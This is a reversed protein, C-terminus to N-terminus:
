ELTVNKPLFFSFLASLGIFIASVLLCYYLGATQYIWGSLLTGILRGTANAMYYFGVDTAVTDSNAFSVILYSHLSSNIAFVAGFIILGTVLLLQPEISSFKFLVALLGTIAALSLVWNFLTQAGAQAGTLKPARAQIIGYGIVWSAMFTGVSWHSWGLISSFYVPLAIVFWIDRAAFLFLRAVSLWNISSNKSLLHAFKPKIKAKGLDKKLKILSLVLILFLVIAMSLAAIQFGLLSLLGAGLFFGLGKMTNKSGTLLAIWSYLKTDADKAVLLKIASKASMKNLDKAVGSLAQAIMVWSATLWENPVVLMLLALVQIALGINMTKNLGFISALWGGILNTVIGFVEYFIFLMAISFPTYGLQYFHLVVLMRLAGDTLTFAWYNATVLSYQKVPNSLNKLVSMNTTILGERGIACTRYNSQYLGM